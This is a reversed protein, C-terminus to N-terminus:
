FPVRHNLITERLEVPIEDLRDEYYDWIKDAYREAVELECQLTSRYDKGPNGKAFLNAWRRAREPMYDKLFSDGSLDDATHCLDYACRRALRVLTEYDALLGSYTEDDKIKPKKSLLTSIKM